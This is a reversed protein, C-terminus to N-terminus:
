SRFGARRLAIAGRLSRLRTRVADGDNGSKVLWRGNGAYGVIEGVHHPWVVIVGVAPEPAPWGFHAWNRALNYSRDEIGLVHRMYWGCWAAPRPDHRLPRATAMMHALGYGLAAVMPHVPRHRVAADADGAFSAVLCFLLAALFVRM